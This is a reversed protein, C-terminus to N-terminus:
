HIISYNISRLTRPHPFVHPKQVLTRRHRHHQRSQRRDGHRHRRLGAAVPDFAPDVPQLALHARHLALHEGAARALRDLRLDSGGVAATRGGADRRATHDAVEGGADTREFGLL